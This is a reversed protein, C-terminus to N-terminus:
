DLIKSIKYLKESNFRYSLFRMSTELICKLLSLIQMFIFITISSKIWEIQSYPYVYNFCLLYFFSIILIISVVIIFAFYKVKLNRMFESMSHKLVTINDKERRFIGKIKKEDEFFFGTIIGIVVSVLTTYIIKDISRPLYSFFNEDEENANYLETIFAESFFFGNVVFYLILHLIFVMIKISRPKIPDEAVFAATILQDEILNTRMHECYKRKDKSVADDFEMDEPSTSMYEKFFNLDFEESDNDEKIERKTELDNNTNLNIEVDEPNKLKKEEFPIIVKDASNKESNTTFKQFNKNRKNKYKINHFKKETKKHSKINDSKNDSLKVKKPPSNLSKTTVLKIYNKTLNFLYKSVQTSQFLFFTLSLGIQGLILTLSIWGGTSRSFHTFINKFCKFVLINSNNILDFVDGLASEALPNDKIINSNSLDNFLCDCTSTMDELNIGKIECGDDCLEVDPYLIQIRSSLPIDKKMPNDFDYCLDTYFPDNLDFINIGQSMLSNQAEFIVTDNKDLVANLSEKVVITENKCVEDADLKFGSLPHYFSQFSKANVIDKVIVIILNQDIGYKTKVKDYCSQFDVDPMDLPLESICDGNKYIMINYKDNKYLSVYNETYYFESIYSKVLTPIIELKDNESLYIDNVGLTCKNDNVICINNENRTGEPCQKLCNGNYLFIYEDDKTCDDICSKKEKIYYKAEEPCQYVALSKIQNYNTVYYFESYAICNNYPNDGPRLMYGNECEICYNKEPNGEKSCQKCVKYCPRYVGLTENYYFKKTKPNEPKMCNLFNTYVITYNVKRYGLAENCTLCLDLKISEENCTLCKEDPCNNPITPPNEKITTPIELLTTPPIVITTPPIVITTPPIVVTTPPIVITTPPTVVTTPPIVITTPPIVVTTPPIVVTTPPIVITTAELICTENELQYGTNCSLCKPDDDNTSYDSCTKCSSHCNTVCSNVDSPDTKYGSKCKLLKLKSNYEYGGEPIERLCRDGGIFRYPKEDMDKCLGCKKNEEDVVYISTDCSTDCINDPVLLYKGDPCKTGCFNKTVDRILLVGDGTCDELCDTGEENMIPCIRYISNGKIAFMSNSSYPLFMDLTENTNFMIKNTKIDFLGYYIENTQKNKIKYYVYRYNYFIKMEIIEVEDIFEFPSDSYTQNKVDKFYHFNDDYFGNTSYGCIFDSVNNYSIFYFANLPEEYNIYAQNYKRSSQLFLSQGQGYIQTSDRKDDKSEFKVFYSKLKIENNELVIATMQYELFNNNVWDYSNEGYKLKFDYLEDGVAGDNSASKQWNINNYDKNFDSNYSAKNGNMLYFLMLFGGGPSQAPSGGDKLGAGHFYCKLDWNGKETFISDSVKLEEFSHYNLKYPHYKGKPCIVRQNAVYYVSEIDEFTIEFEDESNLKLYNKKYITDGDITLEKRLTGSLDHGSISISAYSLQNNTFFPKLDITASNINWLPVVSLSYYFFNLFLIIILFFKM